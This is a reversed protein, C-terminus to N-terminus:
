IYEGLIENNFRNTDNNKYNVLIAKPKAVCKITAITSWYGPAGNLDLFALQIKYYQGVKLLELADTSKETIQFTCNGAVLDYYLAIGESRDNPLNPNPNETIVYTNTSITRLRMAMGSVEAAATAKNLNFNVNISAGKKNGDSDLTLCFAPLIEETIPPYLRAM